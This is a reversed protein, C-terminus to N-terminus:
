ACRGLRRLTASPLEGIHDRYQASFRGLNTFGYRLAIETVNRIALNQSLEAYIMELKLQRIYVSPTVGLEKELLNYLSKRSIRCHRAISEISLDGCIHEIVYSRVQEIQRSQVQSAHRQVCLNSEFIDLIGGALLKGYYLSMRDAGTSHKLSAIDNILNHISASESFPIAQHAFHIPSNHSLYGFERSVQRLFEGPIKIILKTCDASYRMSLEQGPSIVISDGRELLLSQDAVEWICHGSLIVQLHYIDEMPPVRVELAHGYGHESVELIGFERYRIRASRLHSAPVVLRHYGFRSKIFESVECASVSTVSYDCSSLHFPM